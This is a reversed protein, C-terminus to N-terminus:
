WEGDSESDMYIDTLRQPDNDAVGNVRIRHRDADRQCDNHWLDRDVVFGNALHDDHHRMVNYLEDRM